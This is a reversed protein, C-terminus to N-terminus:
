LPTGNHYIFVFVSIHLLNSLIDKLTIIVSLIRIAGKYSNGTAIVIRIVSFPYRLSQKKNLPESRDIQWGRM